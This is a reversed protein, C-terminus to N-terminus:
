QEQEVMVSKNESVLTKKEKVLYDLDKQISELETNRRGLLQNVEATEAKSGQL